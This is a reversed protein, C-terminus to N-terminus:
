FTSKFRVTYVETCIQTFVTKVKFKLITFPCFTGKWAIALFLSCFTM